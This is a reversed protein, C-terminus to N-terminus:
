EVVTDFTEFSINIGFASNEKSAVM